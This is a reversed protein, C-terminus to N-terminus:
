VHARGIEWTGTSATIKTITGTSNNDYGSAFYNLGLTLTAGFTESGTATGYVDTGLYSTIQANSQLNSLLAVFLLALTQLSSRFFFSNKM